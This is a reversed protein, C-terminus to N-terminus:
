CSCDWGKWSFCLRTFFTAVSVLVLNRDDVRAVRSILSRLYRSDPDVHWYQMWRQVQSAIDKHLFNLVGFSLALLLIGKLLRFVGILRM